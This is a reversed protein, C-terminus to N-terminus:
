PPSQPATVRRRTRVSWRGSSGFSAIAAQQAEAETLRAAVGAAASERLHDEAEDLILLALRRSTLLSSRLQDLYEAIQHREM